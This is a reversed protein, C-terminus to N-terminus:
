HETLKDLEEDQKLRLADDLDKSNVQDHHHHHHSQNLGGRNSVPSATTITTAGVTASSMERLEISDSDVAADGVVGGADVKKSPRNQPQISNGPATNGRPRFGPMAPRIGM